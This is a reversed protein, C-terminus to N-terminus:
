KATKAYIYNSLGSYNQVPYKEKMFLGIDTLIRNLECFKSDEIEIFLQNCGRLSETAGHLVSSEHGDVDIKIYQPKPLGLLAIWKDFHVLQIPQIHEPKFNEGFVSLPNSVIKEHTGLEMKHIFLNDIGFHDSAAVNLPTIHFDTGQNLFTNWSLLFYNAPDPELAVTRLGRKAAYIAFIGNSAGLDYFNSSRPIQDIWDLLEPEIYEQGVAMWLLRKTPALWRFNFNRVTSKYVYDELNFSDARKLIKAPVISEIPIRKWTSM